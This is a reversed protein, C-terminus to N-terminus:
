ICLSDMQSSILNGNRQVACAAATLASQERRVRLRVRLRVSLCVSLRAYNTLQVTACASACVSACAFASSLLSRVTLLPCAALAVLVLLNICLKSNNNNWISKNNSNNINLENWGDRTNQFSKNATDWTQKSLVRHCSSGNTFGPALLLLLLLLSLLPVRSDSTVYCVVWLILSSQFAIMGAFFILLTSLWASSFM